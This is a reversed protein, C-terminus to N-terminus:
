MNILKRKGKKFKTAENGEGNKIKKEIEIDHNPSSRSSWSIM